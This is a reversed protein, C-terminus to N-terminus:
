PGALTGAVLDPGKPGQTIWAAEVLPDHYLFVGGGIQALVTIFAHKEAVSEAPLNDYAMVWNPRLHSRTPVLDAPFALPPGDDRAPIIPILMGRTHGHSLRGEIGPALPGPHRYLRVRGMSLLFTADDQRFSGRDKENPAVAHALCEEGIVHEARPFALVRESASSLFLGGAHDWHLHTLIVHTITDPDIGQSRLEDPPDLGPALAYIDREKQTWRQGMGLEILTRSGTPAHDVLLARAVLPIRHREDPLHIREWLYRPVIGHMAGGDLAFRSLLVSRVTFGSSMERTRPIGQM